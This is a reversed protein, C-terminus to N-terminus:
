TAALRHGHQLRRRDRGLRVLREPRLHAAREGVQGQPRGRHRPRRRDAAPPQLLHAGGRGRAPGRHGRRLRGRQLPRRQRAAGPRGRARPPLQGGGARRGRDAAFSDDDEYLKAGDKEGLEKPKEKEIADTLKEKDKVQIAAIFDENDGSAATSSPRSTPPASWSSTAWCRSSTTRTTPTARLGPAAPAAARAPQRVPVERRDGRREQVPASNPDTEIVAVFPADEPVYGLANDLPNKGSDGSEGDGCGAVPVAIAAVALVSALARRSLSDMPAATYWGRREPSGPLGPAGGAAMASLTPM